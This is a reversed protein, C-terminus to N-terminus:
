EWDGPPKGPWFTRVRDGIGQEVGSTILRHREAPHAPVSLVPLKYERRGVYIAAQPRAVEDKGESGVAHAVDDSKM